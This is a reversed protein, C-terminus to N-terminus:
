VMDDLGFVSPRYFGPGAVHGWFGEWLLRAVCRVSVCMEGVTEPLISARAEQCVAGNGGGFGGPFVSLIAENRGKKRGEKGAL